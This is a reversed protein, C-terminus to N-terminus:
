PKQSAYEHATEVIQNQWSPYLLFLAHDLGKMVISNIGHHNLYTDVRLSDVINDKESLFVKTNEPM